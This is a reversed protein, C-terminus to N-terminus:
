TTSFPLIALLIGDTIHLSMTDDSIVNSISMKSYLYEFETFPWQLGQTHIPEKPTRLPYFSITKEAMQHLILPKEQYVPLIYEQATIWAIPALPTQFLQIIALLHDMRGEGGGILIPQKCGYKQALLLALETDTEDKDRSSRHISGTPYQSLIREANPLSDFDGIIHDIAINTGQLQLLGSDAAIVLPKHQLLSIWQNTPPYKGGTFILADCTPFITHYSM